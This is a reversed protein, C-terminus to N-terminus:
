MVGVRLLKAVKRMTAALRKLSKRGTVAAIAHLSFFRARKGEWYDDGFREVGMMVQWAPKTKPKKVAVM